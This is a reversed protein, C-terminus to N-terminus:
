PKIWLAGPSAMAAPDASQIFVQVIGDDGRPGTPGTPGTPGILGAPGTPGIPGQRGPTGPPGQCGTPGQDGDRGPIGNQGADGRPGTPGTPGIGVTNPTMFGKIRIKDGSELELTLVGTSDDYNGGVIGRNKEDDLNQVVVEKGDFTVDSSPQGKADLM